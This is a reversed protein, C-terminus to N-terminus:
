RALPDSPMGATALKSQQPAIKAGPIAQQIGEIVVWDSPGLGSEIIRLQGEQQGIKVIRRQVVNDDGVVLVYSGEQSTGIADNRTLLANERHGIPVRLRVFLDPLLAQDKNDFIARLPLTGTATTVQPSAYDLHGKHPYDEEGQMGVEVPISSLSKLDTTTVPHGAKANGGLLQIIQTESLTFNAYIPSTQIITALTTTASSTLFAGLDVQHNTVVGDFPALVSTFGLNIKATEINAQDSDVTAKDQQVLFVQDDAQQTSISDEKQLRLFRALDIKAEAFVGEDHALQAQAQDLTAQYTDREIGFLQAGRAVEAGDKYDISELYGQARAVLTVTRFPATNGTLELYLTLSQQLAKAVVVKAPPPAVYANRSGSCSSLALSIAALISL